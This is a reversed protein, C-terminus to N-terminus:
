VAELIAFRYLLIAFLFGAKLGEFFDSSLYPLLWGYQGGATFGVHISCYLV